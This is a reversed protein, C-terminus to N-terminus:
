FQAEVYRRVLMNFRTDETKIREPTLDRVYRQAPHNWAHYVLQEGFLSGNTREMAAAVAASEDRSLPVHMWDVHHQPWLPWFFAAPPLQCVEDPHEDALKAPLIVSHQNWRKPDFDNYAQYWREVFGAAPKALIVANTMGKRHGGEHGLIVDRRGSLLKDLPRLIIADTDLYIGGQARLIQLRLIDAKHAPNWESPPPTLHSFDDLFEPGHRTLTVLRRVDKWWPGDESLYVYHLRIECGPLNIAAARIALWLMLTVPNPKDPGIVFHVVNPITAPM